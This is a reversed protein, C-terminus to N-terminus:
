HDLKPFRTEFCTHPQDRLLHITAHHEDLIGKAISLGLGTGEGIDKTTFFPEYLKEQVEPPIPRGSDKVKLVVSKEDETLEIRIWKEQPLNKVADIANKVLHLVVQGIENEDGHIPSESKLDLSIGIGHQSAKIGSYLLSAKVIRSLELRQVYRTESIRGFTKLGGIITIIRKVATKIAEIRKPFSEPHDLAKELLGISGSIITLPTNIEHSIWASMEGLATLKSSQLLKLHAQKLATLDHIVGIFGDLQGDEDVAPIFTAQCYKEIGKSNLFKTEFTVKEGRNARELFPEVERYTKEPILDKKTKGIIEHRSLGFWPEYTQNVFVYHGTKDVKSILSPINNTILELQRKTKVTEETKEKLKLETKKKETIDESLCLLYRFNSAGDLRLPLKKTHLSITGRTKSHSPEDPIDVLIGMESVRMDAALYLDAQEKPWLDKATKELIESEKIEVIEEAAKNWLKIRFDDQVDKLFVAIPINDVIGKIVAFDRDATPPTEQHVETPSHPTSLKQSQQLLQNKLQGAVENIKDVILNLEPNAGKKLHCNFNGATFDSLANLIATTELSVKM